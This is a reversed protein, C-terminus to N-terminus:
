RAMMATAAFFARMMQASSAVFRSKATVCYIVGADDYGDIWVVERSQSRLSSVSFLDSRRASVGIVKCAFERRSIFQSRM